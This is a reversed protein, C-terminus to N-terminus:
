DWGPAWLYLLSPGETPLGDPLWDLEITTPIGSHTYLNDRYERPRHYTVVRSETLHARKEAREVAEELYGIGDILGNALAQPASYIRGDALEDVQAASLNERGAAVVQKFREFAAELVSQLQQREEPRMRRLWSGADKFRGSTLTQNQIGIKEMLGALNISVFIVGISGTITTPQAHIEDAAVAVYYGGSTATGMLQAIVPIDHKSKFREIEHYILDSATATGGPSNIRLLLARVEDDDAARRLEERLRAIRNEKPASFLSPTSSREDIVGSIDILLIKPGAEGFIVTEKLPKPRGGLLDVTVCASAGLMLGALLVVRIRDRKRM